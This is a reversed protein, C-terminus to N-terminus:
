GAAQPETVTVTVGLGVVKALLAAQLAVPDLADLATKIDALVTLADRGHAAAERAAEVSASVAYKPTWTTNNLTKGDAQYYDANNYPPRAAPVVDDGWIRDLDSQELAGGGTLLKAVVANAINAYDEADLTAMVSDKGVSWARLGAASLYCISEDVGRPQDASRSTFQWFLPSFGSPSPRSQTAAEAYTDVSTGPYAPYWLADSGAPYHGAALDAASTYVGVRQGPFAAKVVAIWAAAWARIQSASRGAYNRGDSYRELDLWHTFGTGAYTRVAGIYNGAEAAVDQNPWGFHYAGPVLGAAKIGTIHAAFRDDRSRQGESAKAMAFVVGGAALAGWNQASQYASVDIGRCTTM